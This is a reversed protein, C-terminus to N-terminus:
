FLLKDINLFIIYYIGGGRGRRQQGGASGPGRADTGQWPTCPPTIPVLPEAGTMAKFHRLTFKFNEAVQVERTDPVLRIIPPRCGGAGGPRRQRDTQRDTQTQKKLRLSSPLLRLLLSGGRARSDAQGTCSQESRPSHAPSPASCPHPRPCQPSLSLAPPVMPISIPASHPQPYRLSPSPLVVPSPVPVPVPSSVGHPYPCQPDPPCLPAPPVM